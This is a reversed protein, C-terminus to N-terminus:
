DWCGRTAPKSYFSTCTTTVRFPTEDLSANIKSVQDELFTMDEAHKCIDQHVCMECRTVVTKEM